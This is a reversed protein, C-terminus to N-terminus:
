SVHCQHERMCLAMARALYLLFSPPACEFSNVSQLSDHRANTVRFDTGMVADDATRGGPPMFQAKDLSHRRPLEGDDACSCNGNYAM